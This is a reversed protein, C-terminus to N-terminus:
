ACNILMQKMKTLDRADLKGSGDLDAAFWQPLVTDAADLLWRQLLVADAISCQGDFNVDGAVADSGFREAFPYNSAAFLDEPAIVSLFPQQAANEVQYAFGYYPIYVALTEPDYYISREDEQVAKNPDYVLIRHSWERDAYTWTGDETGYAVVAHSGGSDTEFCVPFPSEGNPIQQATRIMRLIRQSTREYQHYMRFWSSNLVLQYYNILSLVDPDPKLEGVSAADADLMKASFIGNKALVVTVCMGFCSGNWDADCKIRQSILLARDEDSLHYDFGFASYNNSFSWCDASLDLTMDRGHPTPITESFVLQRSKAFREAASNRAGIVTFEAADQFARPHIETVSPPIFVYSFYTSVFFTDEPIETLGSNLTVESLAKCDFCRACLKRVSDSLTLSVVDKSLFACSCITKVGDPLTVVKNQGQYQYLLSDGLIVFDGASKLWPNDAFAMPGIDTVTAPVTLERLSICGCFASDAIRQLHAPFTVSSLASCGSCLERPIETIGSGITLTQLKDMSRFLCEPISTVSDPLTVSRIDKRQEHRVTEPMGERETYYTQKTFCHEAIRTVTDPIVVDTDEGLYKYLFDGRFIIFDETQQRFWAANGEFIDEGIETVTDPIRINALSKCDAFCQTGIATVSDPISVSELWQNGQFACVGLTQVSDPLTLSRLNTNEFAGDGIETVGQPIEIEELYECDCFAYDGIRTLSAPMTVSELMHLWDFAHNGISEVTSDMVISRIQSSFYEWPIRYDDFDWMPGTGRIRLTCNLGASDTTIEWTLNDGCDYNYYSWGDDPKVDAIGIAASLALAIVARKIGM